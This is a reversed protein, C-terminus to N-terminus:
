PHYCLPEADEPPQSGGIAPQREPHLAEGLQRTFVFQGLENDLAWIEDDEAIARFRVVDWDEQAMVYGALDDEHLRHM